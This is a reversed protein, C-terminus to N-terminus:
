HTGADVEAIEVKLVASTFVPGEFVADDFVTRMGDLLTDAHSGDTALFGAKAYESVM